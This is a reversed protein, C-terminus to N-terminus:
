GNYKKKIKILAAKKLASIAAKSVKLEKAVLTLTKGNIYLEEMVFKQKNTLVDLLSYVMATKISEEENTIFEFELEEGLMSLSDVSEFQDIDVTTGTRKLGQKFYKTQKRQKMLVNTFSAPTMGADRKYYRFFKMAVEQVDDEDLGHFLMYRRMFDYSQLIDENTVNTKIKMDNAKTM